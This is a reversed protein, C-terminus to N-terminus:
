LNIITGLQEDDLDKLQLADTNAEHLSALEDQLRRNELELAILQESISKYKESILIPLMSVVCGSIVSSLRM